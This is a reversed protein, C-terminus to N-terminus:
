CYMLKPGQATSPSLQCNTQISATKCKEYDKWGLAMVRAIKYPYVVRFKMPILYRTRPFFLCLSESLLKLGRLWRNVEM